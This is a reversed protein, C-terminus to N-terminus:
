LSLLAWHTDRITVNGLFRNLLVSAIASIVGALTCFLFAAKVKAPDLEAAWTVGFLSTTIVGAILVSYFAVRPLSKRSGFVGWFADRMKISVLML